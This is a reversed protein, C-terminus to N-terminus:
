PQETFDHQIVHDGIADRIQQLKCSPNDDDCFPCTTDTQFKCGNRQNCEQEAAYLANEMTALYRQMKDNFPMSDRGLPGAPTM